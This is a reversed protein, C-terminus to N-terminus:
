VAAGGDPRSEDGTAGTYLLGIAIGFALMLVVVVTFGPKKILTRVSTRVDRVFNEM